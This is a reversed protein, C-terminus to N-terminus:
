AEGLFVHANHVSAREVVDAGRHALLALPDRTGMPFPWDSGVLLHEEGFTAALSPPRRSRTPGRGLAGPSARGAPTSSGSRRM